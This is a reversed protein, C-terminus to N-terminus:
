GNGILQWLYLFINLDNQFWRATKYIFHWLRNFVIFLLMLIGVVMLYHEQKPDRAPARFSHDFIEKFRMLDLFTILALLGDFSNLRERYTGYATSAKIKRPESGNDNYDKSIHKKRNHKKRRKVM